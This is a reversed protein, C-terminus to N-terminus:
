GARRKGFWAFGIALLVIGSPEPVSATSAQVAVNRQWNLGVDNLDTADVNGDGNFDGQLWSTATTSQWNLGIANLDTSDVIRDFNVDGSVTGKIDKIWYTRDEVDVNGSGDVDFQSENTGAVVAATLADLDAVDVFGDGNVDGDVIGSMLSMVVNDLGFIWGNMQRETDASWRVRFSSGAPIAAIVDGSDFSIRNADANGDVIGEFVPQLTAGTTVTGFDVLTTFGDGSDLEVTVSFAAEGPDDPEGVFQNLAPVFVGDKADWAEVDFKLQFSSADTGTVDALLQLTKLGGSPNLALTRDQSGEAGANFLGATVNSGVPFSQTTTNELIVGNESQAWGIPFTTGASSGDVGLAEDFNERYPELGVQLSAREFPLVPVSFMDFENNGNWSSYYLTSGDASLQPAIEAFSTNIRSGLNVPEQWPSNVDSRSTAWLDPRPAGTSHAYFLTLGDSSISPTREDTPTNVVPGLNQPEQWPSQLSTRNSTWIDTDGSGGSRNSIFFLSLGDASISADADLFPSNVTEGVNTSAGWDSDVSPRTSVWLDGAGFGERDVPGWWAVTDSYFLSLQNGTLSPIGVSGGGNVNATLEELPGWSQGDEGSQESVYMTTHGYLVGRVLYLSQGDASIRSHDSRSSNVPIGLNEPVGFVFEGGHASPSTSACIIVLCTAIRKM